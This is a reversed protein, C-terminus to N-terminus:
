RGVVSSAMMKMMNIEIVLLLQFIIPISNEKGFVEWYVTFLVLSSNETRKHESRLRSPGLVSWSINNYSLTLAM